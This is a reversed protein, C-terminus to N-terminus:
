RLLMRNGWSRPSPGDGSFLYGNRNEAPQDDHWIRTMADSGSDWAHPINLRMFKTIM